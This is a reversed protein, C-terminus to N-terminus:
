ESLLWSRFDEKLRAMAQDHEATHVLGRAREKDYKVLPKFRKPLNTVRDYPSTTSTM